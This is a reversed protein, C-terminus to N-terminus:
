FLFFPRLAEVNHTRIIKAGLFSLAIELTKSPADREAPVQIGLTRGLMSKRSVGIAINYDKSFNKVENILSLNARDTKGFGIGPDFYVSEKEFGAAMLRKHYSKFFKYTESLADEEDLPLDQMNAPSKYIHMAVYALGRKAISELLDDSLTEEAVHNIMDIKHDLLRRMIEPKKTDISIKVSGLDRKELISLVADLKAWEEELSVPSAGPRTSEAGLDIYHSGMEILHDIQKLADETKYFLGGDSFSDSTLNVVGMVSFKPLSM